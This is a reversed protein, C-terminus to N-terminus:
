RGCVCLKESILKTCNTSSDIVNSFTIKIGVAIEFLRKLYDQSHFPGRRKECSYEGGRGLASPELLEPNQRRASEDTFKTESFCVTGLGIVPGSGLCERGGVWFYIRGSGLIAVEVSFIPVAHEEWFTPM